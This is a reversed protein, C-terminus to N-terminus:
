VEIFFEGGFDAAFGFDYIGAFVALDVDGELESRAVAEGDVAGVIRAPGIEVCADGADDLRRIIERTFLVLYTGRYLGRQLYRCISIDM